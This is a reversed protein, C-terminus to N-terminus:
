KLLMDQYCNFPNVWFIICMKTVRVAGLKRERVVLLDSNLNMWYKKKDCYVNVTFSM